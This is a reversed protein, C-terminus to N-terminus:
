LASLRSTTALYGFCVYDIKVLRTRPNQASLSRLDYILTLYQMARSRSKVELLYIKTIVM